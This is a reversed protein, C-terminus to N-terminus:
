ANHEKCRYIMALKQVLVILYLPGFTV